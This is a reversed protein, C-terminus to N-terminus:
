VIVAAPRLCRRSSAVTQSRYECATVRTSRVSGAIAHGHLALRPPPSIEPEDSGVHRGIHVVLEREMELHTGLAVNREAHRRLARTSLGDLAEAIDPAYTGSEDIM